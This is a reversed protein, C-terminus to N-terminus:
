NLLHNSGQLLLQCLYRDTLMDEPEPTRKARIPKRAIAELKPVMGTLEEATLNYFKKGAIRTNLCFEDVKSWDATDVGLKQLRHLVASRLSKLNTNAPRAPKEEKGEMADCMANYEAPTIDQLSTSRGNTFSLVLGEKFEKRDGVPLKNILAYFRAFNKVKKM